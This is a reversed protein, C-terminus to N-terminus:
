RRHGSSGDGTPIAADTTVPRAAGDRGLSAAFPTIARVVAGLRKGDVGSPRCAGPSPTSTPERRGRLLAVLARPSSAPTRRPRGHVIVRDGLLDRWARECRKRRGPDPILFFPEFTRQLARRGRRATPIDDTLKDGILTEVQQRSVRPYPDEDGTMFLYGRHARKSWCDMDTHRAAVYLGLEYRSRTGLAGGGGELFSWTLWQDMEKAASEFQGVQLPARDCTADGVAM